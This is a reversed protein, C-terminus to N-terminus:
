YLTDNSQYQYKHRETPHGDHQSLTTHAFQIVLLRSIRIVIFQLILCNRGAHVFPNISVTKNYHLIKLLLCNSIILDLNPKTKRLKTKTNIRRNYRKDTQDLSLRTRLYYM